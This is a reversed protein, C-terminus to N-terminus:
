AADPYMVDFIAQYAADWNECPKYVFLKPDLAQYHGSSVATLTSWAPNDTTASALAVTADGSTTIPIMFINDPNSEVLAEISYDSLLSKNQDSINTGGLDSIIAGPMTGAGQVRVGGSYAIAAMATPHQDAPVKAEIAKIRDQVATGYTTYNEAQGTIDTCTKLMRLYDDFTTVTFYAYPIQANDLANKLDTQATSNANGRTSGTMIVFDPDLDIIKELNPSSFTGIKDVQSSISYDDFSDDSAGVLTGGALEWIHAFSGMCAVVRQPNKNVTVQNGLDDTFTYTTEATAESSAASSDAGAASSSSAGSGSQSGSCGVAGLALVAACAVAAAIKTLKKM